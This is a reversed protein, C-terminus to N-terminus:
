YYNEEDSSHVGGNNSEANIIDCVLLIIFVLSWDTAVVSLYLTCPSVYFLKQKM